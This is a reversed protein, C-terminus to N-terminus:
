LDEKLSYGLGRHTVISDDDPDIQRLKARIMKIHSDVTRELSMEPEEWARNMLEERSFVRGPRKILVCFLRFEYRSLELATDRFFIKLREDDIRFRKSPKPTEAPNKEGTRRLISRIRAVLERPSFPKAVYDDGGIEFGLVRDVEEARATLFLIPVGSTQRIRRCVEFGSLDPLGVDLVILEPQKRELYAFAEAATGSRVATFGETNLAYVITDAISSEDEVVLIEPRGEM